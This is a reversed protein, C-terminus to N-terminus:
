LLVAMMIQGVLGSQFDEVIVYLPVYPGYSHIAAVETYCTWVLHIRAYLGYQAEGGGSDDTVARLKNSCVEFHACQCGCSFANRM